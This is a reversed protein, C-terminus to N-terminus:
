SAVSPAAGIAATAAFARTQTKRSAVYQLWRQYVCTASARWTNQLSGTIAAEPFQTMTQEARCTLARKRFASLRNIASGDFYGCPLGPYDDREAKLFRRVDRRYEKFLTLASYEPHGQFHVFLSKAKKKVFLDVGAAPSETLVQYGGSRLADAPLDNWRSHPFSIASASAGTLPHPRTTEFGFVGFRKNALPQRAIGDSYLAGAHAALCSLVTSTTNEEAWRLLNVLSGWYPERTLDSQRPETGTVILADVESNCLSDFDFYFTGLHQRAKESRPVGPLCFMRLEVKLGESAVNLLEVFQAETDELALDPM